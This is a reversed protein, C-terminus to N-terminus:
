RVIWAVKSRDGLVLVGDGDPAVRVRSPPAGLPVIQVETTELDVIAIAGKDQEPLAVIAQEGDPTVVLDSAPSSLPVHRLIEGTRLDFM